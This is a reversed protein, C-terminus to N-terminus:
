RGVTHYSILFLSLTHVLTFHHPCQSPTLRFHRSHGAAGESQLRFLAELEEGDCQPVGRGWTLRM